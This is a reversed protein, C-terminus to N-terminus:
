VVPVAYATVVVLDIPDSIKGAGILRDRLYDRAVGIAEEDSAAAPVRIRSTATTGPQGLDYVLDVDFPVKEPEVPKPDDFEVSVKLRGGLAEAYQALMFLRMVTVDPQGELYAVRSQPVGMREGLQVQTIGAQKRVEQLRRMAPLRAGELLDINV